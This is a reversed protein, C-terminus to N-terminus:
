PTRDAAPVPRAIEDHRKEEGSQGEGAERMASLSLNMRWIYYLGIVTVPIFGGIHFGIAFSIAQGAPVDWMALGIRSAAEFPGFFGPSSPVAVALSILSQLFIAGSFPVQDIGFARFAFLFSFALAVWQVVALVASVVFLRPSRLVGLGTAFSRLASTVPDRLRHPLRGTIAKAYRAARVPAVVAFYLSAGIGLMVLAVGLAASQVGLGGEGGAPFGPAAMALFLLAVLVIGDFLREIVLTAFASAVPVPTVKGLSYVRAFEGLRAPLINNVAFGIFTAALRPRFPVGRAIPLLLVGWRAARLWMGSVQVLIALAFLGYNANRLHSAVEAFSVDRLAWALLLVSLIIGAAAKLKGTM